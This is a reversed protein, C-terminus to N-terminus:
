AFPPAAPSSLGYARAADLVAAPSGLQDVLSARTLSGAASSFLLAPYPERSIARRLERDQHAAQLEVRRAEVREILPEVLADVAALWARLEAVFAHVDAPARPNEVEALERELKKYKFTAWPKARLVPVQWRKQEARWHNRTAQVRHLTFGPVVLATLWGGHCAGTDIGFARGNWARPEDGVVHHGFVIPKSGTYLEPWYRDGYLAELHKTGSTTAALVDERQSALPVGHEFGGHVAIIDPTELFYPLASAWARFEEYRAGFQVRVIEQSYSLVGRVHKREHNGMLVVSNPRTRFFEWLEVSHPGRDVLDGVSILRDEDTLDLEAMLQQLEGWCGHIDGIFIDRRM